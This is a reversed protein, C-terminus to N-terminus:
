FYLSESYKLAEKQSLWKKVLFLLERLIEEFISRFLVFAYNLELSESQPSFCNKTLIEGM